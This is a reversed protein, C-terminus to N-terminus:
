QLDLTRIWLTKACLATIYVSLVIYKGLYGAWGGAFDSYAVFGGVLRYADEGAACFHQDLMTQKAKRSRSRIVASTCTYCWLQRCALCDQWGDPGFWDGRGDGLPTLTFGRGLLPWHLPLGAWLYDALSNAATVSVSLPRKTPRVIVFLVSWQIIKYM